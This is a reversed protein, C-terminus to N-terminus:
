GFFFHMKCEDMMSKNITYDVRIVVMRGEVLFYPFATSFLEGSVGVCVDKDALGEKIM